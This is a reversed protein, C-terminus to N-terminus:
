ARKQRVDDIAFTRYNPAAVSLIEDFNHCEHIFQVTRNAQLPHDSVRVEYLFPFDIIARTVNTARGM